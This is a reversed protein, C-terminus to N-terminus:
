KNSNKRKELINAFIQETGIGIEELKSLTEDPFDSYLQSIKKNLEESYRRHAEFIQNGKETLTLVVENETAPSVSKNVLGRRRLNQIRKSIAGKTIGQMSALNTVNINPNDGIMEITHVDSMHLQTDTGYSYPIKDIENYRNVIKLFLNSLETLTEKKM